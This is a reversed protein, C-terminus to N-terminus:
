GVVLLDVRSGRAVQGLVRANRGGNLGLRPWDLRVTQGLPAGYGGVGTPVRYVRRGPAYLDLLNEALGVASAEDDYLTDLILEEAQRYQQRRPADAVAVVRQPQTLELRRAETITPPAVLDTATLTTWNRRWGARVRWYVPAPDLEEVEGTINRVDFLLGPAPSPIALRGLTIVGTGDDGWYLAGGAAVRSVAEGVSVLDALVIGAAGPAWVEASDWAAASITADFRTLIRRMIAPLSSAFVGGQVDGRADFLVEGSPASGLRFFSGTSTLAWDYFGAAPATGELAGYGGRDVGATVPAGADYVALLADAQRAHIRYILRAPDVLQPTVTRVTGYIEMIPQGALAATGEPGGVGGYLGLMPVSLRYAADRALLRLTEGQTRWGVGVGDFLTRAQGYTAARSPLLSVRVPYGDVALTDAFADGRGDANMVGLAAVSLAVRREAGPTLPIARELSWEGLRGPFHTNPLAADDPQSTWDVDSWRLRIDGGVVRGRKVGLPQKGLAPWPSPVVSPVRDSAMVEALLVGDFVTASDAALLAPGPLAGRAMTGLTERGLARRM